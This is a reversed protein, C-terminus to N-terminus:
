VHARGIEAYAIIEDLPSAAAPRSDLLATSRALVAAILASVLGDKSGFHQSALGRSYGAREGIRQLSAAAFGEEAILEAAAVLLRQESAERREAQTRRGVTQQPRDILNDGM